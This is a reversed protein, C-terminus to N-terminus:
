YSFNTSKGVRLKEPKLQALSANLFADSDPGHPSFANHLSSGGPKFGDASKADYEGTILGMFESMCNRHYWPPRFTNEMVLWRPPFIVFDANATGPVASPSTLVTFISPDPHDYSISGITNFLRLDYKYPAYNGHWALVNFKSGLHKCSFFRGQNKILLSKESSDADFVAVPYQFDRENALGNSGIVGRPPLEFHQGYNELIYGYVGGENKTVDIRFFIGRPIVVIELPSVDLIGMETQVRLSSSQPVILMDGDFNAFAHEMMPQQGSYIHVASGNQSRVDGAVCVTQVGQWFSQKEQLAFADWRFPEPSVETAESEFLAVPVEHYDKQMVSPLSRYMWSRQNRHHPMTFATGSIQEAYLGKPAKQPSNCGRPLCGPEVESEHHNGFGHLYKRTM